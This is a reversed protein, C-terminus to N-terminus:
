CIVLYIYITVSLLFIKNVVIFGGGVCVSFSTNFMLYHYIYKAFRIFLKYSSMKIICKNAVNRRLTFM